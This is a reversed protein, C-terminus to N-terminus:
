VREKFALVLQSFKTKNDGSSLTFIWNKETKPQISIRIGTQPLIPNIFKARVIQSLALSDNKLRNLADVCFSIQVVAPLLPHGPFHGKFAPFDAPVQYAVEAETQSVFCNKIAAEISM